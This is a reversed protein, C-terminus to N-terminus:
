ILTDKLIQEIPLNDSKRGAAPDVGSQAFSRQIGCDPSILRPGAQDMM